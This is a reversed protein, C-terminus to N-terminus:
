RSPPSCRRPAFPARLWIGKLFGKYGDVSKTTIRQNPIAYFSAASTTDATGGPAAAPLKVTGSLEAASEVTQTYGHQWTTFDYAVIKGAPTSAPVFTWRRPQDTSTGGTEDWRMFQVRVPKGVAQSMLAASISVDDYTSHGYTGSSPYVMLRVANANLGLAAAIAGRSSM